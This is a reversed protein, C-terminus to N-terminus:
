KENTHILTKIISDFDERRNHAELFNIFCEVHESLFGSIMHIDDNLVIIKVGDYTSLEVQPLDRVLKDFTKRNTTIIRHELDREKCENVNDLFDLVHKPAPQPTPPFVDSESINVDYNRIDSLRVTAQVDYPFRLCAWKWGEPSPLYESYMDTTPWKSVSLKCWEIAQVRNM